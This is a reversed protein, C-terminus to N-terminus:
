RSPLVSSDHSSLKRVLPKWRLLDGRSMNPPKRVCARTSTRWLSCAYFPTWWAAAPYRRQTLTVRRGLLLIHEHLLCLLIVLTTLVVTTIRSLARRVRSTAQTNITEYNTSRRRSGNSRSNLQTTGSVFTIEKMIQAYIEVTEEEM